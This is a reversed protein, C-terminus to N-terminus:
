KSPMEQYNLCEPLESMFIMNTIYIQYLLCEFIFIDEFFYVGEFFLPSLLSYLGEFYM